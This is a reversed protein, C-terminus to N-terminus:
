SEQQKPLYSKQGRCLKWETVAIIVAGVYEWITFVTPDFFLEDFLNSLALIYLIRQPISHPIARSLIVFAVANCIYFINEFATDKAYPWTNWGILLVM